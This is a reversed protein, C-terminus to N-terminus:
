PTRPPLVPEGANEGEKRDGEGREGQRGTERHPIDGRMRDRDHAVESRYLQTEVRRDGERGRDGGREQGAKGNLWGGTWGTM